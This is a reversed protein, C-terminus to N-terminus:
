QKHGERVLQAPAGSDKIANVWDIADPMSSYPGCHRHWPEGDVQDFVYWSGNDEGVGLTTSTAEFRRVILVDVSSRGEVYREAM